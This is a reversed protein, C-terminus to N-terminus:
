ALKVGLADRTAYSRKHLNPKQLLFLTYKKSLPLVRRLPYVRM